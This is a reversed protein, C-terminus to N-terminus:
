YRRKSVPVLSVSFPKYRRKEKNDLEVDYDSAYYKAEYYKVSDIEDGTKQLSVDFWGVTFFDKDLFETLKTIEQETTYGIQLQIKPFVGIFTARIEGSMNRDSDKWLKAHSIKYNVLHPIPYIIKQEKGEIEANYVFGILGNEYLKFEEYKGKQTNFFIM